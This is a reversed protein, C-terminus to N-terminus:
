KEPVFYYGKKKKALALFKGLAASDAVRGYACGWCLDAIEEQTMTRYFDKPLRVDEDTGFSSGASSGQSYSSQLLHPKEDPQFRLRVIYASSEFYNGGRAVEFDAVLFRLGNEKAFREALTNFKGRILVDNRRFLALTEETLGLSRVTSGIWLEWILPFQEFFGEEVDTVGDALEFSVPEPDKTKSLNRLYDMDSKTLMGEGATTLGERHSSRMVNM